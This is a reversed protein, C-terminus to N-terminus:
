KNEECFFCVTNIQTDAEACLESMFYSPQHIVKELFPSQAKKKFFLKTWLSFVGCDRTDDFKCCYTKSGTNRPLWISLVRSATHPNFILCCFHALLRLISVLMKDIVLPSPISSLFICNFLFEIVCNRPQWIRILILNGANERHNRTSELNERYNKVLVFIGNVWNGGAVSLYVELLGRWVVIMGNSFHRGVWFKSSFGFSQLLINGCDHYM